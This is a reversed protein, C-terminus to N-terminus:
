NGPFKAEVITRIRAVAEDSQFGFVEEALQYYNKGAVYGEIVEKEGIQKNLPQSAPTEDQTTAM